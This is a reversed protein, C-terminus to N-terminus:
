LELPCCLLKLCISATFHAFHLIYSISRRGCDNYFHEVFVQDATLDACLREQQFIQRCMFLNTLLRDTRILEASYREFISVLGIFRQFQCFRIVVFWYILNEFSVLKGLFNVRINVEADISFRKYSAGFFAFLHCLKWYHQALVVFLFNQADKFRHKPFFRCFLGLLLLM